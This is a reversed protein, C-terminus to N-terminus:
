KNAALISQADWIGPQGPYVEGQRFMRITVDMGPKVLPVVSTPTTYSSGSYNASGFTTNGMTTATGTAYGSSYTQGPIVMTAIRTQDAGGVIQFYRFGRSNALIAARLLVDHQVTAAKDFATGRGTIIATREDLMQTSTRICGAVLIAVILLCVYKMAEGLVAVM